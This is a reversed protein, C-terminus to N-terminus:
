SRPEHAKISVHFCGVQLKCKSTCPTKIAIDVAIFTWTIITVSTILIIMAIIIIVIHITIITIQLVAM